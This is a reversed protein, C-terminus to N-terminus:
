LDENELLANAISLDDLEYLNTEIDQKLQDLDDKSFGRASLAALDTAFGLLGGEQEEKTNFGCQAADVLPKGIHEQHGVFDEANM